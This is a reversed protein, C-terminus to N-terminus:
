SHSLMNKSLLNLYVLHQLVILLPKFYLLHANHIGTDLGLFISYWANLEGEV